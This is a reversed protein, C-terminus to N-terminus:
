QMSATLRNLCAVVAPWQEAATEKFRVAAVLNERAGLRVVCWGEGKYEPVPHVCEMLVYGVDGASDNSYRRRAHWRPYSELEQSLLHTRTDISLPFYQSANRM